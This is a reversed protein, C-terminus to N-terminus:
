ASEDDEEDEGDESMTDSLDDDEEDWHEDDEPDDELDPEYDRHPYHDMLEASEHAWYDVAKNLNYKEFVETYEKIFHKYKSREEGSAISANVFHEVMMRRATEKDRDFRALGAPTIQDNHHSQARAFDSDTFMRKFSAVYTQYVMHESFPSHVGTSAGPTAFLADTIKEDVNDSTIWHASEEKLDDIAASICKSRVQQRQEWIEHTHALKEQYQRLAEKRRRRIAEQKEKSIKRQERLRIARDLVIKQREASVFVQSM